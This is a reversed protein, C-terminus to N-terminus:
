YIKSVTDRWSRNVFTVNQAAGSTGRCTFGINQVPGVNTSFDAKPPLDNRPTLTGNPNMVGTLILNATDKLTSRGAIPSRLAARMRVSQLYTFMKSCYTYDMVNQSNVTDPYDVRFSGTTTVGFLNYAMSAPYEVYYDGYRISWNYFYNYRGQATDDTFYIVNGITGVNGTSNPIALASTSDRYVSPNVVFELSYANVQTDVPAVFRTLRVTQKADATDTVGNQTAIVTGNKRKLQITFPVGKVAPYIDVADIQVKELNKFQIGVGNQADAAKNNNNIAAKGVIASTLICKTDYLNSNICGGPQYHGETPPTDEVGDDGCAVQPNNTGGWPHDLDFHHGIEHALTNEYNLTNGMSTIPGDFWPLINATSPKYAYAAAGTHNADFANVIWINLYNQPPWLDFKAHDGGSTTAYNRRRTIGTTPNGQPDKRALHFQINTNAIYKINTGPINGKYPAIVDSTDSNAGRYLRNIEELQDYIVNDSIYEANGYNHIVHFVVPVHLVEHDDFAGDATVKLKPLNMKGLAADIQAKLQAEAAAVEKPYKAKVRAHMEDAFCHPQQAKVAGGTFCAAATFLLIAKKVM